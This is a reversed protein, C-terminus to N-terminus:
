VKLNFEVPVSPLSGIVNVHCAINARDGDLTITLDSLDEIRGDSLMTDNIALYLNYKLSRTAKEGVVGVM